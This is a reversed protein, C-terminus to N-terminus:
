WPLNRENWQWNASVTNKENRLTNKGVLIMWVYEDFLSPAKLVSDLAHTPNKSTKGNTDLANIGFHAHKSIYFM